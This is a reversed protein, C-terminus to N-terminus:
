RLRRAEAELRRAEAIENVLEFSEPRDGFDRFEKRFMARARPTVEEPWFARACPTCILPASLFVYNNRTSVDVLDSGDIPCKQPPTPQTM